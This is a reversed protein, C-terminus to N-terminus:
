PVLGLLDIHHDSLHITKIIKKIIEIFIYDFFEQKEVPCKLDTRQKYELGNRIYICLGGGEKCKQKHKTIMSYHDLNVLHELSNDIWTEDVTIIDFLYPFASIISRFEFFNKILSRANLSLVSLHTNEDTENMSRVLKDLNYYHSKTILPNSESDEDPFVSEWVTDLNQDAM